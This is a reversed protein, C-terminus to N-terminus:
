RHWSEVELGEFDMFDKVNRTVLILRNTHATAAIMGDPFAPTRGLSTLRAREAAHWAAAGADYPLIPVSALVVKELYRQLTRRRGSEPLRRVGFHLEYWVVAATAIEESHERLRELVYGDPIPRVPESLVNTDLLFRPSM